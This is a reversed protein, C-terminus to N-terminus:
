LFIIKSSAPRSQSMGTINSYTVPKRSHVVECDQQSDGHLLTYSFHGRRIFTTSVEEDSLPEEYDSLTNKFVFICDSPDLHRMHGFQTQGDVSLTPATTEVMDHSTDTLSSTMYKWKRIIAEVRCPLEIARSCFVTFSCLFDFVKLTCKRYKSTKKILKDFTTFRGAVSM